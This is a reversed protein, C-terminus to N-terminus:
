RTKCKYKCLPGITLHGSLHSPATGDMHLSDSRAKDICLTIDSLQLGMVKTDETEGPVAMLHAMGTDSVDAFLDVPKGTALSYAHVALSLDGVLNRSTYYVVGDDDLRDGLVSIGYVGTMGGSEISRRIMKKMWDLFLNDYEFSVRLEVANLLAYAVNSSLGLVSLGREHELPPLAGLRCPHRAFIWDYSSSFELKRGVM